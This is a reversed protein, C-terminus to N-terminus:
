KTMKKMEILEVLVTSVYLKYPRTIDCDRSLKGNCAFTVPALYSVKYRYLESAPPHFVIKMRTSVTGVQVNGNEVYQVFSNEYVKLHIDPNIWIDKRTNRSYGCSWLGFAFVFIYILAFSRVVKQSRM